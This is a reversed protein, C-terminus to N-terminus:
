PCSNPEREVKLLLLQCFDIIVREWKDGLIMSYCPLTSLEVVYTLEMIHM